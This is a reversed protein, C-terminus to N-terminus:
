ELVEKAAADFGVKCFDLCCFLIIVCFAIALGIYGKAVGGVSTGQTPTPLGEALSFSITPSSSTSSTPNPLARVSSGHTIKFYHSNFTLNHVGFFFVNSKLLDLSVPEVKWTWTYVSTKAPGMAPQVIAPPMINFQHISSFRLNQNSRRKGDETGIIADGLTFKDSTGLVQQNLMVVVDSLNTVWRLEVAEGLTFVPNTVYDGPDGASPPYIFYNDANTSSNTDGGEAFVFSSLCAALIASTPLWSRLSMMAIVRSSSTSCIPQLILCNYNLSSSILNDEVILNYQASKSLFSRGPENQFKLSPRLLPQVPETRVSTSSFCQYDFRMVVHVARGSSLSILITSLEHTIILSLEKLIERPNVLDEDLNLSFIPSLDIQYSM